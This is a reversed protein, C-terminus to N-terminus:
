GSSKDTVSIGANAFFGRVWTDWAADLTKELAFERQATATTFTVADNEYFFNLFLAAANTHIEGTNKYSFVIKMRRPKASIKIIELILPRVERWLSFGGKAAERTGDITVRVAAATEVSRAEFADFIESRLLKKMFEKVDEKKLELALM